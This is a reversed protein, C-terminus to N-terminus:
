CGGSSCSTTASTPPLWPLESLHYSSLVFGTVAAAHPLLVPLVHSVAGAFATPYPFTIASGSPPPAATRVLAWPRSPNRSRACPVLFFRKWRSTRVRPSLSARRCLHSCPEEVLARTTSGPAGHDSRGYLVRFTRAVQYHPSPRARFVSRFFAALSPRQAFPRHWSFFAELFWPSSAGMILFTAATTASRVILRCKGASPRLVCQTMSTARCPPACNGPHQQSACM